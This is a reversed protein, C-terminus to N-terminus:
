IWSPRLKFDFGRKFGFFPIHIVKEKLMILIYIKTIQTDEVSL